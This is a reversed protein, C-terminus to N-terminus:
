VIRAPLVLTASAVSLAADKTDTVESFRGTASSGCSAAPNPTGPEATPRSM